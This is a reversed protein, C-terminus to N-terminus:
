SLQCNGQVFFVSYTNVTFKTQVHCERKVDVNKFRVFQHSTLINISSFVKKKHSQTPNCAKYLVSFSGRNVVCVTTDIIM